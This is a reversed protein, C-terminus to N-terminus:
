KFRESCDSCQYDKLGLKVIQFDYVPLVINLNSDYNTRDLKNFKKKTCNPCHYDSEYLWASIKM